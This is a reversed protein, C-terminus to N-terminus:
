RDRHVPFRPLAQPLPSRQNLTESAPRRPCPEGVWLKLTSRSLAKPEKSVAVRLGGEAAARHAAGQTLMRDAPKVTTLTHALQFGGESAAESFVPMGNAKSEQCSHATPGACRWPVPSLAAEMWPSHLPETFRKETSRSVRQPTIQFM